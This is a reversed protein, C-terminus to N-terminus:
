EFPKIGVTFCNISRKSVPRYRRGLCVRYRSIPKQFLQATHPAPALATVGTRTRNYLVLRM